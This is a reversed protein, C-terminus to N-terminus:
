FIEGIINFALTVREGTSMFPNVYHTLWSPFILIEGVVPKHIHHNHNFKNANLDYVFHTAAPISTIKRFNYDDSNMEQNILDSQSIYIVGSLLSDHKHIPNFDGAYSYNYWCSGLQMMNIKLNQNQIYYDGLSLLYSKAEIQYLFTEEIKIQYTNRGALNNSFDNDGLFKNDSLIESKLEISKECLKAFIFDPVKHKLIFTGFPNFLTPSEM